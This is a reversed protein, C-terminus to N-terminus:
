CYFQCAHGHFDSFLVCNFSMKEENGYPQNVFCLFTICNFLLESNLFTGWITASDLLDVFSYLDALKM